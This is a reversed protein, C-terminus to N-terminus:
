GCAMVGGNHDEVGKSGSVAAEGGGGEDEVEKEEGVEAGTAIGEGGGGDGMAYKGRATPGERGSGGGEETAERGDVRGEVHIMLDVLLCTWFGIAQEQRGDVGEVGEEKGTITSATEISEVNNKIFHVFIGALM